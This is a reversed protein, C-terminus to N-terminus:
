CDRRNSSHLKCFILLKPFEQARELIYDIKHSKFIITQNTMQDIKGELEEIKKGYLVGNEITRLRARRVLPDAELMNMNQIAKKQESTTDIM